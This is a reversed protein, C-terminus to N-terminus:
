KKPERMNFDIELLVNLGISVGQLAIFLGLGTLLPLALNTYMWNRAGAEKVLSMIEAGQSLEMLNFGQGVVVLVFGLLVLWSFWMALSAVLNLSSPKYYIPEDNEDSVEKEVKEEMSEETM